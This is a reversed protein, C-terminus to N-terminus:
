AKSELLDRSFALAGHVLKIGGAPQLKYDSIVDRHARADM